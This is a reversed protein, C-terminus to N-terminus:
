RRVTRHSSWRLVGNLTKRRTWGRVDWLKVRPLGKSTNSRAIVEDRGDIVVNSTDIEMPLRESNEQFALLNGDRSLAFYHTFVNANEAIYPFTAQERGTAADWVKLDLVGVPQYRISYVEVYLFRGDPSFVGGWVQSPGMSLVALVKGTASDRLRHGGAGSTVVTRGDPSFVEVRADKEKWASKLRPTIGSQTAGCLSAVLVCTSFHERLFAHRKGGEKLSGRRKSPQWTSPAFASASSARPFGGCSRGAVFCDCHGPFRCGRVAQRARPRARPEPDPGAAAPHAAHAADAQREVKRLDELQSRATASPIPWSTPRRSPM